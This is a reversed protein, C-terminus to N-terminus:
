LVQVTNQEKPGGDLEFHHLFLVEMFRRSMLLFENYKMCNRSYFRGELILLLTLPTM